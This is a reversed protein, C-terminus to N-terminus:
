AVSVDVAKADWYRRPVFAACDYGDGFRAFARRRVSRRFKEGHTAHRMRLPRFVGPRRRHEDFVVAERRVADIEAGNQARRVARRDDYVAPAHM